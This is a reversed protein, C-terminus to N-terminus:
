KYITIKLQVRNNLGVFDENWNKYLREVSGSYDLVFSLNRLFSYINDEIFVVGREYEFYLKDLNNKQIGLLITGGHSHQSIPVVGNEIWSDSNRSYRFTNEIPIFDEFFLNQGALVKSKYEYYTLTQLVGLEDMYVEGSLGEFQSVFLRYMPPLELGYEHEFKDVPFSEKRYKLFTAYRKSEIM